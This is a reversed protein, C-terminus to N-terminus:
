GRGPAAGCALRSGFERCVPAVDADTAARLGSVALGPAAAAPDDPAPSTTQRSISVRTTAWDRPRINAEFHRCNAIEICLKTDSRVYSKADSSGYRRAQEPDAQREGNRPVSAPMPTSGPTLQTSASTREIMSAQVSAASPWATTLSSRIGDRIRCPEVTSLPRLSPIQTGSKKMARAM